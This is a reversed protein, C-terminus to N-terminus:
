SATPISARKKRKKIRIKVKGSWTKLNWIKLGEKFYWEKERKRKKKTKFFSDWM